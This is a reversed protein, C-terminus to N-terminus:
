KKKEIFYRFGPLYQTLFLYVIRKSCLISVLFSQGDEKSASGMSILKLFFSSFLKEGASDMKMEKSLSKLMDEEESSCSGGAITCKNYEFAIIEINTTDLSSIKSLDVGNAVCYFYQTFQNTKYLKRKIKIAYWFM